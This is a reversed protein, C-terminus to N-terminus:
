STEETQLEESNNVTDVCDSVIQTTDNTLPLNADGDKEEVASEAAAETDSSTIGKGPQDSINQLDDDHENNTVTDHSEENGLPLDLPTPLQEEDFLPTTPAERELNFDTEEPAAAEEQPPSPPQPECSIPEAANLFPEPSERLPEEIFAPMADQAEFAPAELPEDEEMPLNDPPTTGQPAIVLVDPQTQPVSEPLFDNDAPPSGNAEQTQEQEPEFQPEPEFPEPVLSQQSDNPPSGTPAIELPEVQPPNDLGNSSEEGELAGGEILPMLNTNAEENNEIQSEFSPTMNPERLSESELNEVPAESPPLLNEAPLDPQETSAETSTDPQPINEPQPIDEPVPIDMPTNEHNLPAPPAPVSSVISEGQDGDSEEIDMDESTSPDKNVTSEPQPQTQPPESVPPPLLPLNPPLPIGGEIPPPIDAPQEKSEDKTDEVNSWRTRRSRDRDRDRERERPRDRDRGGRDRDREGREGRNRDRSRGERDRERDRDRDRDRGRDRDREPDRNQERNEDRERDRERDRDRDRDRERGFRDRGFGRDDGRRERDRDRDRDRDMDQDFNRRFDGRNDEFRRDRGGFHDDQPPMDGGRRFFDDRPQGPGPEEDHPGFRGFEGRQFNGEGPEDGGHMPGRGFRPTDPQNMQNNMPLQPPPGRDNFSIRMPMNMNPPRFNGPGNANGQFNSGPPRVAFQGPMGGRPGSFGGPGGQFHQGQMPLQHRNGGPGGPFRGMMPQTQSPGNVTNPGQLGRPGLMMGPGLQRMGMMHARQELPRGFRDGERLDRDLGDMQGEPGGLRIEQMRIERGEPGRPPGDLRGHELRLRPSDLMGPGELRLRPLDPGDLRMGPTDHGRDSMRDQQSDKPPTDGLMSNVPRRLELGPSDLRPGQGLLGLRPGVPMGPPQGVIGPMMPQRPDFGPPPLRFNPPPMQNFPLPPGGPRLGTLSTPTGPIGTRILGPTGPAASSVVINQINQALPNSVPSPSTLQPKDTLESQTPTADGQLNLYNM